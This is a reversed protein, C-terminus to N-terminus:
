LNGIGVADPVGGNGLGVGEGDIDTIGQMPNVNSLKLRRPVPHDVLLARLSMRQRKEQARALIYDQPNHRGTPHWSLLIPFQDDLLVVLHPLATSVSGGLPSHPSIPPSLPRSTKALAYPSPLM